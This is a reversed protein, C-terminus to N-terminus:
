SPVAEVPKETRPRWAIFEYQCTGYGRAWDPARVSDRHEVARKEFLVCPRPATEFCKTKQAPPLNLNDPIMPFPGCRSGRVGKGLPLLASM